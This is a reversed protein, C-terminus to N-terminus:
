AESLQIMTGKSKGTYSWLMEWGDWDATQTGDIPRTEMFRFDVSSPAGTEELLCHYIAETTESGARFNYEITKEDSSLELYTSESDCTEAVSKATLRDNDSGGCAALLLAASTMVLVKKMM